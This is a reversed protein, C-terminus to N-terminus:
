AGWYQEWLWTKIWIQGEDDFALQSKPYWVSNSMLVAGQGFTGQKSIGEIQLETLEVGITYQDAEFDNLVMVDKKLDDWLNQQLVRNSESIQKKEEEKSM